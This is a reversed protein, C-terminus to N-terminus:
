QISAHTNRSRPKVALQHQTRRRTVPRVSRNYGTRSSTCPSTCTSCIRCQPYTHSRLRSKRICSFVHVNFEENLFRLVVPLMEFHVFRKLATASALALAGSRLRRGSITKGAHDFCVGARHRGDRTGHWGMGVAMFGLRGGTSGRSGWCWAMGAARDLCMGVHAYSM